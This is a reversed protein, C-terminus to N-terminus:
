ILYLIQSISFIMFAIFIIGFLIILMKIALRPPLVKASMTHQFKEDGIKVVCGESLSKGQALLKLELVDEYQRAQAMRLIYYQYNHSFTSWWPFCIIFGLIAGMLIIHYKEDKLVNGLFAVIVTEALFYTGFQQWLLQIQYKMLEVAYKYGDSAVRLDNKTFKQSKPTM